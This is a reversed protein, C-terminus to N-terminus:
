FISLIWIIFVIYLSTFFVDKYFNLTLYMESYAYFYKRKDTWHEHQFLNIVHPAFIVFSPQPMTTYHNDRSCLKMWCLRFEACTSIRSTDSIRSPSSRVITEAPFLVLQKEDTLWVVFVIWWKWWWWPVNWFIIREDNSLLMEHSFNNSLYVRCFAM